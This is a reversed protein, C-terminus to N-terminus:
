QKKNTHKQIQYFNGLVDFEIVKEKKTIIKGCNLCKWGEFNLFHDFFSQLIMLGACKSCKM